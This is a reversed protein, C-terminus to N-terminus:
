LPQQSGSASHCAKCSAPALGTDSLGSVNASITYTQPETPTSGGGVGGCAILGISATVILVFHTWQRCSDM